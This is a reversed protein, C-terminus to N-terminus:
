LESDDDDVDFDVTYNSDVVSPWESKHLSLWGPGQFWVPSVMQFDLFCLKTGLDSPNESSSVYKWFRIFIKGRIKTVRNAVYTNYRRTENQLYGLVIRSDTWYHTQDVELDLEHSLM